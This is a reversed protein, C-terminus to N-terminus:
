CVCIKKIGSMNVEREEESDVEEEADEDEEGESEVEEQQLAKDFAM